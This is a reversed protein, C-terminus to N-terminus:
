EAGKIKMKEFELYRRRIAITFGICLFLTGLWLINIFPMEVAELIVWDKQTTQVGFVFSNTEPQIAEISVKIGLDKILFPVKGAMKDKIIYTPTAEYDGSEGSIRIRAKIAVDSPGLKVGQFEDLREVGEFVSVYDNMFFEGQIPVTIEQKESWKGEDEPDPFTRIHTYLDARLTRRIDPSYVIMDMSENMQVRPFLTFSEGTPKKYEIEFYSNEPGIVTLTDGKNIGKDPLGTNALYKLPDKTNTVFSENIYGHGKFKKRMGLYNLSYDAMQRPENMFLLLNNRNVEDPFENSWVLGTYNESVIKSYGSSFLIGVLMLGIGIHTFSGGTLKPSSKLLPFLITANAIISYTACVLLLLYRVFRFASAANVENQNQIVSSFNTAVIIVISVILSIVLPMYLVKKLEAKDMKKWWFFQGTGSLVAIVVAFWIQIDSYASVQDVPPALNLEAGFLAAIKNYVPYSTVHIVHFAMVSLTIAGLLIWFERSYGSVENEASPIQKWKISVLIVSLILFGFLCLLLQGSLGLDTFSHVSSDGLVGSRTLFTSYLILIFTAITLIISAKLATDSKKFAIMTHVAAVLVLWPVYVANEVPDWNWYGGFNLTEYAWYAGMLIGVGLVLASFQAWPLAPRIWEKFKGLALGSICYAFPVLTTAFGLFLTPPHIVMWYNQLLPNLGNGDQPVFEPNMQFIPANIVERLLMFPSSGIKLENFFVAGLIMSTLFAQVLSFIAMVPATWFKNTRIIVIGLIVNWFIWLLFSGEQGEWFCSIQYYWPLIKSSHSQAYHYEFYNHNIIWYLSAVVGVVAISHIYFFIISNKELRKKKEPSGQNSALFFLIAAIISTVFASIVLTHGLNGVFYHVM